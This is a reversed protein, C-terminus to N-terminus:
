HREDSTETCSPLLRRWASVMSPTSATLNAIVVRVDIPRAGQGFSRTAFVEEVPPGDGLRPYVLYVVDAMVSRLSAYAVVQYLDGRRVGSDLVHYDATSQLLKYKAEMVCTRHGRLLGDLEVSKGIGAVGFWRSTPVTFGDERGAAVWVARIYREFIEPMSLQFSCTQTPVAFAPTATLGSVIMQCLQLVGRETQDCAAIVPEVMRATFVKFAVGRLLQIAAVCADEIASREEHSAAGSFALLQRVVYLMVRTADRDSTVTPFTCPMTMSRGHPINRTAYRAIHLRGRPARSDPDFAMEFRRTQAAALHSAIARAVYLAFYSAIEGKAAYAYAVDNQSQSVGSGVRIMRAVDVLGVKPQVIVDVTRSRQGFRFTGVISSCNLMTRLAGGRFEGTLSLGLRELHSPPSARLVEAVDDGIEAPPGTEVLQILRRRRKRDSAVYETPQPM